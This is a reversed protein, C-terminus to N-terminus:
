RFINSDDHLRVVRIEPYYVKVFLEMVKGCIATSNGTVSHTWNRPTGVGSVLILVKEVAADSNAYKEECTRIFKPLLVALLPLQM